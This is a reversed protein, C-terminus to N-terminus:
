FRLKLQVVHGSKLKKFNVEDMLSRMLFIGRGSEKLINKKDLPNPIKNIDFGNGEDKVYITLINKSVRCKLRVLKDEDSHNGYIIANNVAETCSILLRYMTGDDIQIMKALQKLCKEVKTVERPISKLTFELFIPKIIRKRKSSISKM